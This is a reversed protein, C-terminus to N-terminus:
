KAAGSFGNGGCRANWPMDSDNHIAIAAPSLFAEQWSDGTVLTSHFGHPFHDSGASRQAHFKQCQEGETTFGPPSRWFFDTEQHPKEHLREILFGVLQM